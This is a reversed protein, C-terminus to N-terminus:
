TRISPADPPDRVKLAASRRGTLKVVVSQDLSEIVWSDDSRFVLERVAGRPLQGSLFRTTCATLGLQQTGSVHRM